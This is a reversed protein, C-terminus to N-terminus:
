AEGIGDKGAAREGRNRTANAIQTKGQELLERGSELLHRSSEKVKDTLDRAQSRIADRTEAGSQPAFLLGLSAGVIAGIALGALFDKGKM